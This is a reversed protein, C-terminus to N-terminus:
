GAPTSPETPSARRRPKSRVIYAEFQPLLRRPIRGEVDAGAETYKEKAISGKERFVALLEAAEYPLRVKVEVMGHSLVEDMRALLDPLGWGQVASIHVIATARAALDSLDCLAEGDPRYADSEAPSGDGGKESLSGGSLKDVKNLALITPKDALELEALLDTVAEAQAHCNRHSADLVHVLVTASEMEELTARFAAVLQPPLKHIFGVTDTMLIQRGSPLILRRTVPDLTAFPRDDVLVGARTLANLLTSKGANTYGVLSVVPMGEAERQQRHLARSRRVVEIERKLDTIRNRVRRRDAELQTEGPGARAGIGGTQRELHTWQGRLRPLLYEYQALEVQLRGEHSQARQAFIDLILATRDVVKVGLAEELNRSQGPSVEDDLVVMDFALTENLAVIEQLKGKGIYHAPNPSKLRQSTMGVVDCGAAEALQRLEELSDKVPWLIDKRAAEVGVLFARERPKETM